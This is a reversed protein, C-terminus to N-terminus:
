CIQLSVYKNNRGIIKKEYGNINAVCITQDIFFSNMQKCIQRRTDTKGFLQTMLNAHKTM